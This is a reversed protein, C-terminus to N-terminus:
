RINHICSKTEAIHELSVSSESERRPDFGRVRYQYALEKLSRLCWPFRRPTHGGYRAQDETLSNILSRSSGTWQNIVFGNGVNGFPQKIEM